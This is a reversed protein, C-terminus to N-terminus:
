GLPAADIEGQSDLAERAGDLSDFRGLAIGQVLANGLATAEAPGATVPVGLAERILRNLLWNRSGGGLIHVRSVSKGLFGSLEGIVNAAGEALSGLICRVVADRRASAPLDAAARVEAEMDDPALFRADRADVTPGGTGLAGAASLLDELPPDDWQSRCEELMWLGTVNKLFRMGGLAGPENSFNAQRAAESVDPEPREAGVLMWTGSSIFARGPSPRGPLAVVASATDHGGVLHVPVGRWEGIRTGAATIPPMISPDVGIAELLEGSWDGTRVDVLASTGASTREGTREGTLAYVVLEPLMLLHKARSLEEPDHAELQFITNLQMLQIGTTRYLNEAGIRAVVDAWGATREDRYSYPPSLLEGDAGLLGYDVGWTDIGISAVPGQALGAELGRQVEDILRQWDWRLSGDDHTVPAHQHRHLIQPRLLPADLDVAAVRISSAGLDVALVRLM